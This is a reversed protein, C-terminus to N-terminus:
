WFFYECMKRFFQFVYGGSKPPLGLVKELSKSNNIVNNQECSVDSDSVSIGGENSETVETSDTTSDMQLVMDLNEDIGLNVRVSSQELNTSNEKPLPNPQSQSYNTTPFFTSLPYGNSVLSTASFLESAPPLINNSYCNFDFSPMSLCNNKTTPSMNISRISNAIDQLLKAETEDSM